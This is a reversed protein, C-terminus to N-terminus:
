AKRHRTIVCWACKDSGCVDKGYNLYVQFIGGGGM